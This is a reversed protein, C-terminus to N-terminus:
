VEKIITSNITVSFSLDTLEVDSDLNDLLLQILGPGEEFIKSYDDIELHDPVVHVSEIENTINNTLGVSIDHEILM